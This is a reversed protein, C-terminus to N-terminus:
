IAVFSLIVEERMRNGMSEGATKSTPPPLYRRSEEIPRSVMSLLKFGRNQALVILAKSNKINVGRIASDGIVFIAHGNDKLVRRCESMVNGMDAIYRTIMGQYSTGLNEVDGMSELIKLFEDTRTLALSNESGINRSRLSRLSKISYGMWVLSLKHGRMYDIANLYPPSTVVIDISNSNISLYRADGKAIIPTATNINSDRFPSKKIIYDAASLFKDFPNVPAKEYKRHPRSHSVDMALSVGLKKTIILRSFATWLLNKENINDMQSISQALATLQIRCNDDFWFKIFKKTEDDVDSPYANDSPLEKGIEIAKDLISKACDVLKKSSVDSCWARAILVALPDTDCGIALHGQSRAIVLSTGSGMMPDLICLPKGNDPLSDWVISPAMRAPFPHIPHMNSVQITEKM